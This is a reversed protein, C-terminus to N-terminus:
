HLEFINIIINRTRQKVPMIAFISTTGSTDEDRVAVVVGVVVGVAVVVVDVGM